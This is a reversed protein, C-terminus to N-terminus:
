ACSQYSFYAGRQQGYAQYISRFEELGKRVWYKFGRTYCIERERLCWEKLPMSNFKKGHELHRHRREVKEQAKREEKEHKYERYNGNYDSYPM